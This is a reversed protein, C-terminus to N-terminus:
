LDIFGVYRAIRLARQTQYASIDVSRIEPEVGVRFADIFDVGALARAM